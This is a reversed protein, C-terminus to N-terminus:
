IHPMKHFTFTLYSGTDLHRFHRTDTHPCLRKQRETDAGVNCCHKTEGVVAPLMQVCPQFRLMNRSCTCMAELLDPGTFTKQFCSVTNITFAEIGLWFWSVLEDGNLTVKPNELSRAPGRYFLFSRSLCMKGTSFFLTVVPRLSNPEPIFLLPPTWAESVATEVTEPKSETGLHSNGVPQAPTQWQSVACAVPFLSCQPWVRDSIGM